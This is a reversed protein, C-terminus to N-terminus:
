GLMRAVDRELIMRCEAQSNSELCEAYARFADVLEGGTGGIVVVAVITVLIATILAGIAIVLGTIAIGEGARGSRRVRSRAIITLSLAAIAPILGLVPFLALLLALIATVLAVIAVPDVSRADGAGTTNPSPELPDQAATGADAVHATWAAGDWWRHDHRGTPDTFWGPGWTREDAM